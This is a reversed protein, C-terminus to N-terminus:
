RQPCTRRWVRLSYRKRITSFGLRTSRPCFARPSLEYEAGFVADFDKRACAQFRREIIPRLIRLKRVDLWRENPFGKFHRGLLRKPFRSADPRYPEWSGVDVCCIARAGTAQIRAVVSRPVENDVDYVPAKVSLDIRGQLQWQWPQTTPSPQWCPACPTPASIPRATSGPAQPSTLAGLAALLAAVGVV